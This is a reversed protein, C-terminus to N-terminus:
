SPYSSVCLTQRNLYVSPGRVKSVQLIHCKLINLLFSKMYAHWSRVAGKIEKGGGGFISVSSAGSVQKLHTLAPWQVTSEQNGISLCSMPFSVAENQRSLSPVAKWLEQKMSFDALAQYSFFSARGVVSSGLSWTAPLERNKWYVQFSSSRCEKSVWTFHTKQYLEKEFLQPCIRSVKQIMCDVIAFVISWHVM